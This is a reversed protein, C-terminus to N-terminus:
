RATTSCSHNQTTQTTSEFSADRKDGKQIQSKNKQRMCSQKSSQICVPLVGHRREVSPQFSGQTVKTVSGHAFTPDNWGLETNQGRGFEEDRM